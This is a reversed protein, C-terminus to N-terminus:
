STAGSALGLVQKVEQVIIDPPVPKKLISNAGMQLAEDLEPQAMGSVVVVSMMKLKDSHRVYRLVDVGRLGPIDLDLTMLVPDFDNLLVGAQFGDTAIATDFGAKELAAEIISATTPDDEVILIRRGKEQFVKPIPMNNARLFEIFDEVTVRNDGRGPLKHAKLLGREIWRIVTRFNVQCYSAIDGTTLTQNM